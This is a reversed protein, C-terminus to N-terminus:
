GTPRPPCFSPISPKPKHYPPIVTRTVYRGNSLRRRIKRPKPKGAEWQALRAYAAQCTDSRINGVFRQAQALSGSSARAIGQRDALPVLSLAVPTRQYLSSLSLGFLKQNLGRYIAVDGHYAGVYYQGRIVQYAIAISGGVLLVFLAVIATMVPRRRRAPRTGHGARPRYAGDAPAPRAAEGAGAPPPEAAIGPAGAAADAAAHPVQVAAATTVGGEGDIRGLPRTAHSEANAAAGVVVPAYTPTVPSDGTDIVDAVICTINDPGGHANALDILRVVADSPEAVETLAQLILEDSVVVPLGDSCLLFRDGAEATLLSLDPDADSRGDLARLLLSRQPHTAAEEPRLRDKAVTVAAALTEVLESEPVPRRDLGAVSSIVSASAVEGAEYGGMGDAVALLYPGAYASDENGERLLGVDSRVAYRLALTM